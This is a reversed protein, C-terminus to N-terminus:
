IRCEGSVTPHAFAAVLTTSDKVVNPTGFHEGSKVITANIFPDLVADMHAQSVASHDRTISNLLAIRGACQVLVMIAKEVGLTACSDM